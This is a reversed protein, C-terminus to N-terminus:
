YIFELHMKASKASHTLAGVSIADVGTKVYDCLNALTIGGSAEIFTLPNYKRIIAVSETVQEPTFNDLLIGDVRFALAESLQSFNAVEVEIFKEPYKERIREIAKAVSGAAIIHNDKILIGVSLNLRHNYGGACQVAYKEFIRLGPTTKRTDLIRVNYPKAIEVYQRTNTAIGCLRQLINLLTREIELLFRTSARITFIRSKEPVFDGDKYHWEIEILNKGLEPLIDVIQKGAFVIEEENELYAESFQNDDYFVISTLDLTPIDEELWLKFRSIIYEKDIQSIQSYPLFPM